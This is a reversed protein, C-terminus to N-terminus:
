VKSPKFSNLTIKALIVAFLVAFLNGFIAAWGPGSKGIAGSLLFILFIYAVLGLARAYIAREPRGAAYFVPYLPAVMGMIAAAVVLLVSLIVADEYGAGFVFPIVTPGLFYPLAACALGFVLLIAGTRLVIRWIQAGQGRTVMRAFEPYIVRDLLLMGESLLKAIDDAVKYAGVYAPGFIPMVLLVPLHTTGTALSADINAKWVFSWIGPRNSTLKPRESFLKGVLNRGKLEWLAMLPLSLYGVFSGVFWAVIFGFLGADAWLAVLVGIFRVVPMVLTQLALPVFKDFIRFLGTSAGGQHVLILVCYPIGYRVLKSIVANDAEGQFSGLYPLIWELCYLGAVALVFAALAGIFDLAICFRTLRMLANTDKDEINPTGYRIMAQWSQFTAVEAFLLMYAHLFLLIGVDGIPLNRTLLILSILGILAAAAKAGVMMGTNAVVRSGVTGKEAISLDETM